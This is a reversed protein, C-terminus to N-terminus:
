SFFISTPRNDTQQVEQYKKKLNKIQKINYHNLFTVETMISM